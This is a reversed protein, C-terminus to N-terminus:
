SVTDPKESLTVPRTFKGRKKMLLQGEDDFEDQINTNDHLTNDSMRKFIRYGVFSRRKGRILAAHDYDTNYDGLRTLHNMRYIDDSRKGNPIKVNFHEIPPHVSEICKFLRTVYGQEASISSLHLSEFLSLYYDLM